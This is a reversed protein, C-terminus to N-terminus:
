TGWVLIPGCAHLFPGALQGRFGARCATGTIERVGETNFLWRYGFQVFLMRWKVFFLSHALSASRMASAYWHFFLVKSVAWMWIFVMGCERIPSRVLM